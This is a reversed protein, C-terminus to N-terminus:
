KIFDKTEKILYDHLEKPKSMFDWIKDLKKWDKQKDDVIRIIILDQSDMDFDKLFHVNIDEDYDISEWKITGSDLEEKFETKLINRISNEMDICNQCRHEGHFYILKSYNNQSKDLAIGLNNTFIILFAVAFFLSFLKM